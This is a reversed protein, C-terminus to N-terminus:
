LTPAPAFLLRVAEKLLDEYFGLQNDHHGSQAVDYDYSAATGSEPDRLSAAKADWAAEEALSRAIGPMLPKTVDRRFLTSSVPYILVDARDPEWLHVAKEAVDIVLGTNERAGSIVTLTAGRLDQRQKPTLDVLWGDTPLSDPDSSTM